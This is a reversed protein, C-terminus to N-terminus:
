RVLMKKYVCKESGTWSKFLINRIPVCLFVNGNKAKHLGFRNEYIDCFYKGDKDLILHECPNNDAAGCCNGCRLCADEFEKLKNEQYTNYQDEM